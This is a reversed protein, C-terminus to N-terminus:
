LLTTDRTLLKGVIHQVDGKRLSIPDPTLSGIQSDAKKQAM